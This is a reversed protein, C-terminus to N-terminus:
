VTKKQMALEEFSIIFAVYDEAVIILKWLPSGSIVDWFVSNKIVV